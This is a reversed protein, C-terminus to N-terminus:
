LPAHGAGARASVVPGPNTSRETVQSGPVKENTALGAWDPETRLWGNRWSWSWLWLLWLASHGLFKGVCSLFCKKFRCFMRNLGWYIVRCLSYNGVQLHVIWTMSVIFCRYTLPKLWISDSFVFDNMMSPCISSNWNCCLASYICVCYVYIIWSSNKCWNLFIFMGLNAPRGTTLNFYINRHTASQDPRPCINWHHVIGIHGYHRKGVEAILIYGFSLTYKSRYVTVTVAYHCSLGVKHHTWALTLWPM